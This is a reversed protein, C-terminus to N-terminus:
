QRRTYFRGVAVQAAIERISRDILVRPDRDPSGQAYGPEFTQYPSKQYTYGVSPFGKPTRTVDTIRVSSAFRGTRNVLRPEGMNKQVMDNIRANLLGLLMNLSVSSKPAAKRRKRGGTRAVGSTNLKKQTARKDTAKTEKKVVRKTPKSVKEPKGKVKAGKVKTLPDMVAKVAQKRKREYATDSGEINLIEPVGDKLKVLAAAIEEKLQDQADKRDIGNLRNEVKSQISIQHTDNIDNRIFQIDVGLEELNNLLKDLPMEKYVISGAKVVSDRLFSDIVGEDEAHGGEFLNSRKTVDAYQHFRPNGDGAEDTAAADYQKLKINKSDAFALLLRVYEDLGEEYITKLKSFNDFGKQKQPNEEAQIQVKISYQNSRVWNKMERSAQVIKAQARLNTLIKSEKVLAMLDKAEIDEIDRYRLEKLTQNVLDTMTFSFFHTRRNATSNRYYRNRYMVRKELEELFSLM